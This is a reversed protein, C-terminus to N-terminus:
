LNSYLIRLGKSCSRDAYVHVETQSPTIAIKQVREVNNDYNKQYWPQDTFLWVANAKSFLFGTTPIKKWNDKSTRDDSACIGKKCLHKLSIKGFGLWLDKKGFEVTAGIETGTEDIPTVYLKGKLRPFLILFSGVIFIVLCGTLVWLVMKLIWKLLSVYELEFKLTVEKGSDPDTALIFVKGSDPAKPKVVLISNDEVYVDTNQFSTDTLVFTANAALEPDIFYDELSYRFEATKFEACGLQMLQFCEQKPEFSDALAIVAANAALILILLLIGLKRKM